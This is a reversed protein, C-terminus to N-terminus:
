LLYAREKYKRMSHARIFQSIKNHREEEKNEKYKKRERERESERM